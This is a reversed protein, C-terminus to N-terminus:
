NSELYINIIEDVIKNWSYTRYAKQINNQQIQFNEEHSLNLAKLMKISLQKINKPKFLFGNENEIIVDPIGGTNSAVVILGMSLAEVISLPFGEHISPLCFIDAASYFKPMDELPILDIFTVYKEIAISKALIKLNRELRGNGLIFFHVNTFNNIVEPIARMLYEVGKQLDLRGVFIVKKYDIVNKLYKDLYSGKGKVSFKDTDVGNPIIRLNQDHIRFKIMRM